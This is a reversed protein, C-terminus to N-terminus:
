VQASILKQHYEIEQTSDVGYLVLESVEFDWKIGGLLNQIASQQDVFEQRAEENPLRALTLHAHFNMNNDAAYFSSLDQRFQQNIEILSDDHEVKAYLVRVFEPDFVGLGGITIPSGQIIGSHKEIVKTIGSINDQSQEDLYYLTIHPTRPRVLRAAPLLKGLKNLLSEFESQYKEPLPIGVFYSTFRMANSYWFLTRWGASQGSKQRAGLRLIM